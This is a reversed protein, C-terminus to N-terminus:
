YDLDDGQIRQGEVPVSGLDQAAMVWKVEEGILGVLAEAPEDDRAFLVPM